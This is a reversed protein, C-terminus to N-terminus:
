KQLNALFPPLNRFALHVNDNFSVVQYSHRKWAAVLADRSFISIHGNRPGVYWWNLRQNNFDSPQVLTTFLIVGPDAACGIMQEIGLIPDPLHELTEFCTVLELKESPRRDYKPVMPDYTIALPFGNARLVECFVDNGGGYDLVRTEAKWQGWLRIVTEANSSPRQASYEPDVVCYSDNYIHELSSLM